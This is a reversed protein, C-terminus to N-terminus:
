IESGPNRMPSVGVPPALSKTFFVAVIGIAVAATAQPSALASFILATKGTIANTELTLTLLRMM